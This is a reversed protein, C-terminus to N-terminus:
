PIDSTSLPLSFFPKIFASLQARLYDSVSWSPDRFQNFDM